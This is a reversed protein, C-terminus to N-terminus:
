PDSELRGERLCRPMRPAPGRAREHRRDRPTGGRWTVDVRNCLTRTVEDEWEILLRSIAQWPYDPVGPLGRSKLCHGPAAVRRGRIGLLLARGSYRAAPGNRLMLAPGF